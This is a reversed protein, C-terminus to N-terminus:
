TLYRLVIAFLLVAILLWFFFDVFSVVQQRAERQRLAEGRTRPPQRPIFATMLLAIM